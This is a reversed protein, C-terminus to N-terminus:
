KNVRFITPIEPFVQITPIKTTDTCENKLFAEASWIIKKCLQYVNIDWSIIKKGYQVTGDTMYHIQRNISTNELRASKGFMLNFNDVEIKFSIDDTGEHLMSCRLKYFVDGNMYPMRESEPKEKELPSQEYDGINSDFWKKYREATKDNPYLVKGCIDPITLAVILAALNNGNALCKKTEDIYLQISNVRM